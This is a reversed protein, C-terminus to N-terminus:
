QLFGYCAGKQSGKELVSGLVKKESCQTAMRGRLRAGLQDPSRKACRM